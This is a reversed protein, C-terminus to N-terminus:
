NDAKKVLVSFLLLSLSYFRKIETQISLSHLMQRYFKYWPFAENFKEQGKSLIIVINITYIYNFSM